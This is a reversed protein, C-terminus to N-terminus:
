AWRRARCTRLCCPHLWWRICGAVKTGAPSSLGWPWGRAMLRAPLFSSAPMQQYRQRASDDDLLVLSDAIVHDLQAAATHTANIRIFDGRRPLKGFVCFEGATVPIRKFNFAM